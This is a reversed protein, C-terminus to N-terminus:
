IRLKNLVNLVIKRNISHETVPQGINKILVWNIKGDIVKKDKLMNHYLLDTNINDFLTPLSYKKLILEVEKDLDKKLIGSEKSLLVAALTGIAVAEGHNYRATTAEIAHAITHGFNLVARIGTDKEDASVINSKLEICRKIVWELKSSTKSIENEKIIKYLMKDLSIAYKIVEAMGASFQDDPLRRLTETDVIIAKPQHFVGVINKFGKFNIATKGGIAADVQALLTTPITIYDVGRMYTAAVFGVLDSVTGGGIAILLTKRDFRGSNLISYLKSAEDLSKIKESGSLMHAHVKSIHNKIKKLIITAWPSTVAKDFVIFCGTYKKYDIVTDIKQLINKGVFIPVSSDARKITLIASPKM